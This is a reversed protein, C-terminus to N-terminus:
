ARVGPITRLDADGLGRPAGLPGSAPGARSLRRRRPQAPAGAPGVAGGNRGARCPPPDGPRARGAPRRPHQRRDPRLPGAPRFRTPRRRRRPDTRVLPAVGNLRVNGAAIRVAIPDIDSALVPAKLRRAIAIALVASGTGVDLARVIRRTKALRDIAALCGATTGHHGTGFAQAAEIEITLDNARAAARDHSGHVLFRGVRVPRLGELSKAVWDTEALAAFAFSPTGPGLTAAALANLAAREAKAPTDAFYVVVRWRGPAVEAADVALGSFHADEGLADALVKADAESADITAAHIMAIPYDAKLM